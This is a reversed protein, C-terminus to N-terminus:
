RAHAPAPLAKITAKGDKQVDARAFADLPITRIPLRPVVIVAEGKLNRAWCGTDWVGKDRYAAYFHMVKAGSLPLDCKRATFLLVPYELQISEGVRMNDTPYVYADDAPAASAAAMLAFTPVVALARALALPKM